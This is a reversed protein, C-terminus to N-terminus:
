FLGKERLLKLTSELERLREFDLSPSLKLVRDMPMLHDPLAIARRVPYENVQEAAFRQAKESLLFRLFQRGASRQDSAKVLGAGTVLALNGPDGDAFHYVKVSANPNVSEGEEQEGEEHEEEEEGEYEGEAGGYKLRHVYYHNTLAIDIEGAALARVMPTNSAYAKPELQKMQELWQGATSRGEQIRLATVFDQFSTYTPTWGVRGEFQELEPLERVSDPLESPDVANPNYALVRFRATIPAWRGSSPVFADPQDLVSDPLKALLGDSRAAGLTGATNAWFVDADTYTGEQNLTELLQAGRGYKVRVEMGSQAEFKKVLPEILSKSRGAYLVLPEAASVSSVAALGLATLAIGTALMQNVRM